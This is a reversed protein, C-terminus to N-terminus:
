GARSRGWAPGTNGRCRVLTRGANRWNRVALRVILSSSNAVKLCWTFSPNPSSASPHSKYNHKTKNTPNTQQNCCLFMKFVGWAFEASPCRFFLREDSQFLTHKWLGFLHFLAINKPFSAYPPAVCPALTTIRKTTAMELPARARFVHGRQPTCTCIGRRRGVKGESNSSPM